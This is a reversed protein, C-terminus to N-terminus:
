AARTVQRNKNEELLEKKRALEAQAQSLETDDATKESGRDKDHATAKSKRQNMRAYARRTLSQIDLKPKATNPRLHAAWAFSRLV